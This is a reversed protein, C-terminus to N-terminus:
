YNVEVEVEVEGEVEVEVGVGVEPKCVFLLFCARAQHVKGSPWTPGPQYLRPDIGQTGERSRGM